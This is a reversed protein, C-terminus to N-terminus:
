QAWELMVGRGDCARQLETREEETWRTPKVIRLRRLTTPFCAVMEVTTKPMRRIESNSLGYERGLNLSVLNPLREFLRSSAGGNAFGYSRCTLTTLGTMRQAGPLLFTHPTWGTPDESVGLRGIRLEAVNRALTTSWTFGAPWSRNGIDLRV